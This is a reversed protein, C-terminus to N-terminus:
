EITELKKQIKCKFEHLGKVHSVFDCADILGIFEALKDRACSICLGSGRADRGCDNRCKGWTSPYLHHNYEIIGMYDQATMTRSM